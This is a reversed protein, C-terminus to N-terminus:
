DTASDQQDSVEVWEYWNKGYKPNARWQVKTGDERVQVVLPQSTKLTIRIDKPPHGKKWDM